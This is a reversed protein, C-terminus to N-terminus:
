RILYVTSPTLQNNAEKSQYTDFDILVINKVQFEDGGVLSVDSSIEVGSTVLEWSGGFADDTFRLLYAAGDLPTGGSVSLDSIELLDLDLYTGQIPDGQWIGSAVVGVISISSAGGYNIDLYEIIANQTPVTTRGPIGNISDVLEPNDSVEELTVGVTLGNRRFPGIANINSLNFVDSSFTVEGTIGNVRFVGNNISFNGIQNATTAFVKGQVGTSSFEDDGLQRELVENAEIPVGGFWPLANYDVGSGVYEMTHSGSTIQSRNFNGVRNFDQFPTTHSLENAISRARNVQYPEPSAFFDPVDFYNLNRNTFLNPETMTKKLVEIASQTASIAGSCLNAPTEADLLNFPYSFPLAYARSNDIHLYTAPDYQNLPLVFNSIENALEDLLLSYYARLNSISNGTDSAQKILAFRSLIGSDVLQDNGQYRLNHILSNIFFGIDRRCISENLELLNNIVWFDDAIAVRNVLQNIIEGKNVEIVRAADNIFIDLKSLKVLEERYQFETGEYQTNTTTNVGQHPVKEVTRGNIIENIIDFYVYISARANACNSDNINELNFAYSPPLAYPFSGGYRPYYTFSSDYDPNFSYNKTDLLALLEDRMSIFLLSYNAQLTALDSPNVAQEELAKLSLRTYDVTKENGGRQIDWAVARLISRIDRDCKNKKDTYLTANFGPPLNDTVYTAIAPINYNIINGADIMKQEVPSYPPNKTPLTLAGTLNELNFTDEFVSTMIDFYTVCTTLASTCRVDELKVLSTGLNDLDISGFSPKNVGDSDKEILVGYDTDEFELNIALLCNGLLTKDTMYESPVNDGRILRNLLNNVEGLNTSTLNPVEKYIAQKIENAVEYIYTNGGRAMQWAIARVMRKLYYYNQRSFFENLWAINSISAWPSPSGANIVNSIIQGVPENDIEKLQGTNKYILASADYIKGFAVEPQSHETLLFDKELLEGTFIDLLYTGVETVLNSCPTAEGNNAGANSGVQTIEEDTYPTVGTYLSFQKPTSGSDTLKEIILDISSNVASIQTSCEDIANSYLDFDYETPKSPLSYTETLHNGSSDYNINDLLSELEAKLQNLIAAYDAEFDALVLGENAVQDVLASRGSQGYEFLYNNGTFKLNLAIADLYLGLDRRCKESNDSFLNPYNFGSTDLTAMKDLVKEKNFRIVASADINNQAVGDVLLLERNSPLEYFVEEGIHSAGLQGKIAKQIYSLLSFDPHGSVLLIVEDKIVSWNLLKSGTNSFDVGIESLYKKIQHYARLLLYNGTNQLQKSAGTVIPLLVKEILDRYSVDTGSLTGDDTLQGSEFADQLNPLLGLTKLSYYARQIFGNARGLAINGGIDYSVANKMILNSADYRTNGLKVDSLSGLFNHFPQGFIDDIDEVTAEELSLSLDPEYSDLYEGEKNYDGKIARKIFGEEKTFGYNTLEQDLVKSFQNSDINDPTVSTSLYEIGEINFSQGPAPAAKSGPRLRNFGVDGVSIVKSKIPFSTVFDQTRILGGLGLVVNPDTSAVLKGNDSSNTANVAVLEIKLPTLYRKAYQIEIRKGFNSIKKFEIGNERSNIEILASQIYNALLVDGQVNGNNITPDALDSTQATILKFVGNEFFKTEEGDIRFSLDFDILENADDEVDFYIYQIDEKKTAATPYVKSLSSEFLAEKSRGEAVLGYNGFDTTSNTLNVIGGSRTIVHIHCFTGFFSVLQAYGDNIIACGIGDMDIQTFSDVVMSRIPSFKSISEGDIKLGGGGRKFPINGEVSDRVGAVAIRTQFDTGLSSRDTPDSTDDANYTDPNGPKYKTYDVRPFDSPATFATANQAYPSKFIMRKKEGAIPSVPNPTVGDSQMPLDTGFGTVADVYDYATEDERYLRAPPFEIAFAGELRKLLERRETGLSDFESPLSSAALHGEIALLTFYFGSNAYFVSNSEYGAKPRLITNRISEGIVSIEPVKVNIPYEEEYIGSAIIISTGPSANEVADKISYKPSSPTSGDGAVSGDLPNPKVYVTNPRVLDSVEVKGVGLADISAQATALSDTELLDLRAKNENVLADSVGEYAEKIEAGLGSLKKLAM